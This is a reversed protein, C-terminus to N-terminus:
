RHRVPHRLGAPGPPISEDRGGQAPPRPAPLSAALDTMLEVLGHATTLASTTVLRLHRHALPHAALLEDLLRGHAADLEAHRALTTFAEAPLGTRRVLDAALDARPPLWELVAIHGLLAVPHAHRIWYYQAGALRAAAPAPVRGTLLEPEAGAAILDDAVWRDHGFEEALQETFYRVLLDDGLRVSEALAESLLPATARVLDHCIYLWERYSEPTRIADWMRGSARRLLPTVLDLTQRLTM